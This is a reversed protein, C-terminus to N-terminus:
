FVWLVYFFFLCFAGGPGWLLGLFSGVVVVRVVGRGFFVFLLRFLFDKRLLGGPGWFFALCPVWLLAPVRGLSFCFRPVHVGAVVCIFSFCVFVLGLLFPLFFFKRLRGARLAFFYRFVGFFSSFCSGFCLPFLFPVGCCPVRGGAVVCLLALFFLLFGKKSGGWGLVRQGAGFCAWFLSGCCSGAGGM